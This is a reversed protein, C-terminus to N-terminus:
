DLGRLISATTLKGKLIDLAEQCSKSWIFESDKALFGFLPSALKSFDKIFRRYYGALGLFSRVDRQKQPPPVRQIIAIKNPDVQLGKQSISHGLITSATMLFECKKPSLSLNMEICKNLVKGLNSLAELFDCGYPTFDDM